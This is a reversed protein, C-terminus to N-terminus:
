FALIDIRSVQIGKQVPFGVTIDCPVSFGDLNSPFFHFIKRGLYPLDYM